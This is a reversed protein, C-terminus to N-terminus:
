RAELRSAARSDPFNLRLKQLAQEALVPQGLQRYIEVLRALAEPARGPQEKSGYPMVKEFESAARSFMRQRYYSEALWYQANGAFPNDPYRSLFTRFTDAAEAYRGAAHKSFGQLYLRNPSLDAQPREEVVVKETTEAAEPIAKEGPETGMQAPAPRAASEDLQKQLLELRSTLLAIQQQMEEQQQRLQDIETRTAAPTGSRLSQTPPAACGAVLLLPIIWRLSKM